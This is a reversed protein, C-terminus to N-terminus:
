AMAVCLSSIACTVRSPLTIKLEDISMHQGGRRRYVQRDLNLSLCWRGPRRTSTAAQWLWLRGDIDSNSITLVKELPRTRGVPSVASFLPFPDRVVGGGCLTPTKQCLTDDQADTREKALGCVRREGGLVVALTLARFHRRGLVQHALM